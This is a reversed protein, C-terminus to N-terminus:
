RFHPYRVHLAVHRFEHVIKHTPRAACGFYKSVTKVTMCLNHPASSREGGPSRGQVGAYPNFPALAAVRLERLKKASQEGKNRWEEPLTVGLMAKMDNQMYGGLAADQSDAIALACFPVFLGSTHLVHLLDVRTKRKLKTYQGAKM